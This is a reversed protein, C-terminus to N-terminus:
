IQIYSNERVQEAMHLSDICDMADNIPQAPITDLTLGQILNALAALGCVIISFYMKRFNGKFLLYFLLYRAAHVRAKICYLVSCRDRSEKPPLVRSIGWFNRFRIRIFLTYSLVLGHSQKCLCCQLAHRKIKNSHKCQSVCITYYLALRDMKDCLTHIQQQTSIRYNQVNRKTWPRLFINQLLPARPMRTLCRLFQVKNINM